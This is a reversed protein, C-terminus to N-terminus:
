QLNVSLFKKQCILEARSLQGNRGLLMPSFRNWDSNVLLITWTNGYSYTDSALRINWPSVPMSKQIKKFSIALWSWREISPITWSCPSRRQKAAFTVRPCSFRSSISMWGLLIVCTHRDRPFSSETSFHECRRISSILLPQSMHSRQAINRNGLEISVRCAQCLKSNEVSHISWHTPSQRWEPSRSPIMLIASSHLVM